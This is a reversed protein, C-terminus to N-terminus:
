QSSASSTGSLDGTQQLFTTIPRYWTQSGGVCGYFDGDGTAGPGDQSKCLNYPTTESRLCTGVLVSACSASSEPLACLRRALYTGSSAWAPDACAYMQTYVSGSISPLAQILSNGDVRYWTGDLEDAEPPPPPDVAPQKVYLQTGWQMRVQLTAKDVYVRLGSMVASSGFLMGYFAGERVAFLEQESVFRATASPSSLQLSSLSGTWNRTQLSFLRSTPCAFGLLGLSTGNPTSQALFEPSLIDCGRAGSCARLESASWPLTTSQVSVQTGNDCTGVALPQWGCNMDSSVSAAGCAKFSDILVGPPPTGGAPATYTDTGAVQQLLLAPATTSDVQGRLSIRVRVGLPNNRALVCSSVVELCQQSPAGSGWSPCLGMDGPWGYTRGTPDQWQVSQSPGLACSVLYKMLIRAAPDNLALKLESYNKFSLTHLPVTALRANALPDTILANFVLPQTRLGNGWRVGATGDRAVLLCLVLMLCGPTLWRQPPLHM